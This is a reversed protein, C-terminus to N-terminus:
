VDLGDTSPTTGIFREVQPWKRELDTLSNVVPAYKESRRKSLEQIFYVVPGLGHRKTLRSAAYRDTKIPATTHFAMQFHDVVGSVNPDGAYGLSIVGDMILQDIIPTAVDLDHTGIWSTLTNSVSAIAIERKTMSM